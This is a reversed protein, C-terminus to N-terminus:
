LLKISSIVLPYSSGGLIDKVEVHEYTLGEVFDMRQSIFDDFNLMEHYKEISIKKM